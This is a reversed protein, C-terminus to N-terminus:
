TAGGLTNPVEDPLLEGTRLDKVQLLFREDGVTDTAFALLNGDPSVSVSGLSFFEHGQALVDADLLVEEGPIDVDTALRPPTWDDPGQTPCRCSAGYQKDEHSRGYYWWGGMRSPVSLDTEQTRSRIEEFVTERLEALHATRAESYSNEAELYGLTEPAEKDRLWEYDDLVTDGHHTRKTPLRRAVPPQEAPM